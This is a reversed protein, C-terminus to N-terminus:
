NPLLPLQKSNKQFEKWSDPDDGTKRSAHNDDRGEQRVSEMKGADDRSRFPWDASRREIPREPEPSRHSDSRLKFLEMQRNLNEAQAQEWTIQLM